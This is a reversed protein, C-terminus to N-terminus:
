FSFLVLNNFYFIISFLYAKTDHGDNHATILRKFVCITAEDILNIEKKNFM